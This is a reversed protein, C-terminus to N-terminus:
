ILKIYDKRTGNKNFLPVHKRQADMITGTYKCLKTGGCSVKEKPFKDKDKTRIYRGIM